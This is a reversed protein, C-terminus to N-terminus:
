RSGQEIWRDVLAQWRGQSKLIREILERVAGAGGAAATVCHVRARVEPAADAPAASLGVRALVALDVLDDGMYAVQHDALRLRRVIAEYSRVKPGSSQVVLDIRLETARRDTAPSPRSSLWGIRLGASQALVMAAGDRIHFRKAEPGDGSVLVTGDTLVGDVDLLLLRVAAARAALARGRPKLVARDAM